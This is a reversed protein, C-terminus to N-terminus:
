SRGLFRPLNQQEQVNKGDKARLELELLHLKM